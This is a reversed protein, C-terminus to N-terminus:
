NAGVRFFASDYSGDVYVTKERGSGDIVQYELEGAEMASSAVTIWEGESLARSIMVHYKRSTKTPFTLAIRGTEPNVNSRTIEFVDTAAFPFTGALYEDLNSMGDGDSDANPDIDAISTFIGDSWAVMLEEWADPLGDGDTDQAISFDMKLADGPEPVTFTGTPVISQEVGDIRVVIKGNSGPLAANSRLLPLVDELPVSIRYNIGVHIDGDLLYAGCENSSNSLDLVAVEAGSDMPYGYEDRIQGYIVAPPQPQGAQVIGAFLVSGILFRTKM